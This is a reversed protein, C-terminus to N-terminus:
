RTETFGRSGSDLGKYYSDVRNKWGSEDMNPWNKAEFNPAQELQQKTMNLVLTDRGRQFGPQGSVMNWPIPVLKDGIGLFGGHSLVAYGVRGDKEVVFDEIKGLNEGTSNQVTKGMIESMRMPSAASASPDMKQKAAPTQQTMPTTQSGPQATEAFVPVAAFATVILLLGITRALKIM